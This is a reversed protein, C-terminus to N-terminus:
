AYNTPCSGLPHLAVNYKEGLKCQPKLTSNIVRYPYFTLLSWHAILVVTGCDLGFHSDVLIVFLIYYLSFM